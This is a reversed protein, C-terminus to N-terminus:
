RDVIRKIIKGKKLLDDIIQQVKEISDSSMDALDKPNTINTIYMSMLMGNEEFSLEEDYLIGLYNLEYVVFGMRKEGFVANIYSM